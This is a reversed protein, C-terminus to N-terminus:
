QKTTHALHHDMGEVGLGVLGQFMHTCMSAGGGVMWLGLGVVDWDFCLWVVVSCYSVVVCPKLQRACVCVCGHTSPASLLPISSSRPFRGTRYQAHAPTRQNPFMKASRRFQPPGVYLMCWCCSPLFKMSLIRLTSCFFHTSTSRSCKCKKPASLKPWVCCVFVGVCMVCRAAFRCTYFVCFKYM